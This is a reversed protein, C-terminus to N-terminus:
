IHVWRARALLRSPATRLSQMFMGRDLAAPERPVFDHVAESLPRHMGQPHKAQLQQFIGETCPALAAGTLCHRARSIEGLQVKAYAAAAREESSRARPKPPRICSRRAEDLLEAWAGTAFMDFRRLLEQRGLGGRQHPRHLLMKPLLCFLKWSRLVMVDDGAQASTRRAELAHRLAQHFRGKVFAPCSQLVPFRQSYEAQMDVSDMQSWSDSPPSSPVPQQRHAAARQRRRQTRSARLEAPQECVARRVAEVTIRVIVTELAAIRADIKCAEQLIREQARGSFHVGGRPKPFGQSYIWEALDERSHIGWSRYARCLSEWAAQVAYRGGVLAGAVPVDTVVEATMALWELLPCSGEDDAAAWMLPVFLASWQQRQVQRPIGDQPPLASVRRALHRIVGIAAQVDRGGDTSELWGTTGQQVEEMCQQRDSAVAMAALSPGAATGINPATAAAPPTALGAAPQANSAYEAFGIDSDTDVHSRREQEDEFADATDNGMPVDSSRRVVTLRLRQAPRQPPVAADLDEALAGQGSADREDDVLMPSPATQEQEAAAASGPVGFDVASDPVTQARANHLQRQQGSRTREAGQSAASPTTGRHGDQFDHHRCTAAIRSDQM